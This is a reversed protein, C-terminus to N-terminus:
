DFVQNLYTAIRDWDPDGVIKLKYNLKKEIIFVTKTPLFEYVSKIYKKEFFCNTKKIISMKVVCNDFFIVLDNDIIDSKVTKDIIRIFENYAANNKIIIVPNIETKRNKEDFIIYNLSVGDFFIPSTFNHIRM